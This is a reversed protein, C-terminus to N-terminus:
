HMCSITPDFRLILAKQLEINFEYMYCKQNKVQLHLM